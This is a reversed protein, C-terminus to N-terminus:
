SHCPENMRTFSDYTHHSENVHTVHRTWVHSPYPPSHGAWHPSVVERGGGKKGGKEGRKEGKKKRIMGLMHILYPVRRHPSVVRMKLWTGCIVLFVRMISSEWCHYLCTKNKFMDWMHGLCSENTTFFSVLRLKDLVNRNLSSEWWHYICSENSVLRM